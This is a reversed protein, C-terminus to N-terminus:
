ELFEYTQKTHHGLYSLFIRRLVWYAMYVKEDYKLLIWSFQSTVYFHNLQYTVLGFGHTDM